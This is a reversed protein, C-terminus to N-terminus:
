RKALQNRYIEGFIDKDSLYSFLQVTKELFPEVDEDTLKMTSGSKLLGDCFSAILEATKEKDGGSGGAGSSGASADQNVLRVFADKLAKQFLAHGSFQSKVMDMFKEHVALLDRIFQPDDSNTAVIAGAGADGGKEGGKSEGGKEAKDGKEKDAAASEVRVRHQEIKEEGVEVIHQRVAEAVPELGNTIRSFLKFMRTLDALQDNNLMVRIGSGERELLLTQRKELLERDITTLLKDHTTSHLYANVRNKEDELVQEVRILYAPTSETSM